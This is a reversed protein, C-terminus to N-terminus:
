LLFKMDRDSVIIRLIGLFMLNKQFFLGVIYTADDCKHCTIFHSIKFFLKVIMIDDKGRPTRPLAAIFDVRIHDWPRTPIPSPLTRSPLLKKAM